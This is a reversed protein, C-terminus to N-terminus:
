ARAFFSRQLEILRARLVPDLPDDLEKIIFVPFEQKNKLALLDASISSFHDHENVKIVISERANRALIQYGNKMLLSEVEKM